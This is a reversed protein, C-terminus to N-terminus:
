PVSGSWASVDGTEFGDTFIAKPVLEITLKPRSTVQPNERTNFRKATATTGENGLLLWGFDSSPDDLWAQVDAVMEPTSGWFYVGVSGVPTAASPNAAFDGGISTWLDSPYFTHIWTADGPESAAGGGENAEPDSAGEGWAALVRRLEVTQSGSISRSMQLELQAGVVLSDPPAVSAADFALLGRRILATATSGAFLYQGAGNSLAGGADEYLTNDRVAVIEFTDAHSAAAGLALLLTAATSVRRM